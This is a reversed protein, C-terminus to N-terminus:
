YTIQYALYWSFVNTASANQLGRGMSVLLHNHEDFDYMAGINFGASDRAGITTATQYFIEGGITLKDTVKKQLLWGFYWYDKDDTSGGHNVWYGGGGYTTWDGFSKQVWLPLFLRLHGTGLGRDLNGTPVELFPFTGVMPRFGKSDEEIFRYKFGLETDGYGAVTPGGAPSDFALPAIIHFQGNPILGYNFEIAPGVGATDGRVATGLTFFYLEYHQYEVPEPDDTRFPPGATATGLGLTAGLLAVAGAHGVLASATAWGATGTRFRDTVEGLRRRVCLLAAAGDRMGSAM